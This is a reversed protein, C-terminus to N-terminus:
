TATRRREAPDQAQCRRRQQRGLDARHEAQQSEESQRRDDGGGPSGADFHPVCSCTRECSRRARWRNTSPRSRCGALLQADRAVAVRQHGAAYRTPSRAAGSARALQTVAAQFASAQATKPRPYTPAITNRCAREVACRALDHEDQHGAALERLVDAGGDALEAEQAADPQVDRSPQHPELVVGGRDVRAAVARRGVPELVPMREVVHREAVGPGVAEHEVVDGEVQGGAGDHGDDALVAGALGGQDLQQGPEVVRGRPADLDVADVEGRMDTGSHRSRRAPAKWSKKRNSSRAWCATPTPSRARSSSRGAASAATVPGARVVDDVPQGGAEVGLESRGPVLADLHGETLPLLERQGAAEHALVRQQEDSSSGVAARSASVSCASNSRKAAAAAARRLWAVAPHRTSTECRNEVTRIASTM